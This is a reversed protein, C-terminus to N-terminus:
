PRGAIRRGDCYCLGLTQTGRCVALNGDPYEYVNVQGGLHHRRTRATTRTGPIQSTRGQYVVSNDNTITVTEKLCFVDDLGARQQPVLPIFRISADEPAVAFSANFEPWYQRLFANAEAIDSVEARALEKKLRGRLTRLMRGSRGQACRSASSIVEIGLERMVRSFQNQSWSRTRTGISGYWYRSARGSALRDFLGREELTERVGLLRAWICPEDALLGSSVLNTADDITAILHRHRGPIWQEQLGVQHLLSGACPERQVLAQQPAPGGLGNRRRKEVLGEEQLRGKVWTYSRIGGHKARYKEYFHSVSWGEYETAYILQLARVETLQARSSRGTVRRDELGKPGKAEYRAVYRRFTRESMGLLNAARARTMHRSVWQEYVKEFREAVVDRLEETKSM